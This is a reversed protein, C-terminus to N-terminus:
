LYTFCSLTSLKTKGKKALAGFLGCGSKGTEAWKRPRLLEAERGVM